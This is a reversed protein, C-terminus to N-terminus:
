GLDPVGLPKKQLPSKPTKEAQFVILLFFMNEKPLAPAYLSNQPRRGELSLLALCHQGLQSELPTACPAM